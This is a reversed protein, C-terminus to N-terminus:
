RPWSGNGAHASGNAPDADPAEPGAVRVRVTRRVPIRVRARNLTVSLGWGDRTPATTM